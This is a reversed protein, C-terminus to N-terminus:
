KVSNLKESSFPLTLTSGLSAIFAVEDELPLIKGFPIEIVEKKFNFGYITAKESDSIVGGIHQIQSKLNGNKSYYFIRGKRISEAAALDVSALDDANFVTAVHPGANAFLHLYNEKLQSSHASINKVIVIDPNINLIEEESLRDEPVILIYPKEAPLDKDSTWNLVPITKGNLRFQEQLYYATKELAQIGTVVISVNGYFSMIARRQEAKLPKTKMDLSSLIKDIQITQNQLVDAQASILVRRKQLAQRLFESDMAADVKLLEKIELLSFGLDKLEKIRASAVLQTEEYYRYDNDGRTHSAILGMKEYLRLAKATFGSREAFQGITLWNKM